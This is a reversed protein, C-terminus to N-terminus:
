TSSKKTRPKSVGTRPNGHEDLGLKEESTIWLHSSIVVMSGNSSRSLGLSSVVPVLRSSLLMHAIFSEPLLGIEGFDMLVTKGHEDVGFNRMDQCAVAAAPGTALADHIGQGSYMNVSPPHGLLVLMSASEAHVLAEVSTFPLPAKFDKLIKYRIHGGESPGIVHDPPRPVESLWKLARAIREILDPPDATLMTFEMVVYM